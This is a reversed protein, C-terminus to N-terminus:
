EIRGMIKNTDLLPAQLFQSPDVPVAGVRLEWHLHAGTAFGSDGLSGIVDGMNVMEGEGVELSNMHYYLSYVGPLHEIIVTNGTLYRETALVVRGRGAAKVPTGVEQWLDIGFHISSTESGDPRHYRRRDGFEATHVGEELPLSLPGTQYIATGDFSTLIAWLRRAESKKRESEDSLLSDMRDSLNIVQEPFLVDTVTVAKELHWQARGQDANMALTYRGPSVSSPIGLLVISVSGGGPATWLFADNRSLSENRSNELSLSVNSLGEGPIVIQLVGGPNVFDDSIIVPESANLFVVGTLVFFIFLIMGRTPAKFGSDGPDGQYKLHRLHGAITSFIQRGINLQM